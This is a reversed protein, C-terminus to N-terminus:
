WNSSKYWNMLCIHNDVKNMYIIDVQILKRHQYNLTTPKPSTQYVKLSHSSETEQNSLNVVSHLM